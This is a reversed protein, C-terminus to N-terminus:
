DYDEFFFNLVPSLKGLPATNVLDGDVCRGMHGKDFNRLNTTQSESFVDNSHRQQPGLEGVLCILVSMM